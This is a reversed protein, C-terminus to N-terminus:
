NIALILEINLSYRLGYFNIARGKSDKFNLELKDLTVPENFNFIANPIDNYNLLAFPINNNINNIFLYIKDEIRLDWLNNAIYSNNDSCEM